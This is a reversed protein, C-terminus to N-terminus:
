LRVSCSGVRHSTGQLMLIYFLAAEGVFVILATIVWIYMMVWLAGYGNRAKRSNVDGFWIHGLIIMQEFCM